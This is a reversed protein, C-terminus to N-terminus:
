HSENLRCLTRHMYSQTNQVGYMLAGAAKSYAILAKCGCFTSGEYSSQISLLSGEGSHTIEAGANSWLIPFATCEPTDSALFRVLGQSRFFFYHLPCSSPYGLSCHHLLLKQNSHSMGVLLFTAHRNKSHVRQRGRQRMILQFFAYFEYKPLSLFRRPLNYVLM